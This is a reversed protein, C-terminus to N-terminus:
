YEYPAGTELTQLGRRAEVPVVCMQHMVQLCFVYLDKKFISFAFKYCAVMEVFLRLEM